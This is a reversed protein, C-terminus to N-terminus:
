EDADDRRRDRGTDTPLAQGAPPRGDVWVGSGRDDPMVYAPAGSRLPPADYAPPPDAGPVPYEYGPPQDGRPPPYGVPPAAYAPGDEVQQGDRWQREREADASEAQLREPAQPPAQIVRRRQAQVARWREVEQQGAVLARALTQQEVERRHQDTQAQSQQGAQVQEAAAPGSALCLGSLVLATTRM